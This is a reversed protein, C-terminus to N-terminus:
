PPPASGALSRKGLKMRYLPYCAATAALAILTRLFAPGAAMEGNMGLVALLHRVDNGRSYVALFAFFAIILIAVPYRTTLILEVVVVAPLMVVSALLFLTTYHAAFSLSGGSLIAALLFAVTALGLLFALAVVIKAFYLEIPRTFNAVLFTDFDAARNRAIDVHFALVVAFLYAEGFLRSGQARPPLSQWYLWSGIAFIVAFAFVGVWTMRDHLLRSLGLRLLRGLLRSDM